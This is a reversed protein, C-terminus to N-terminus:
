EAGRIRINTPRKKSLQNILDQKETVLGSFGFNDIDVSKLDKIFLLYQSGEEMDFRGTDNEDKFNLKEPCSGKLCRVRILQYIYASVFGENDIIKTKSAVEAIIVCESKNFEEQVTKPPNLNVSFATSILALLVASSLVIKM